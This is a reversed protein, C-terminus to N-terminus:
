IRGEECISMLAGLNTIIVVAQLCYYYCLLVASQIMLLDTYTNNNHDNGATDKTDSAPVQQGTLDAFIRMQKLQKANPEDM